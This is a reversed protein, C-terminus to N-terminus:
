PKRQRTRCRSKSPQLSPDTDRAKFKCEIIWSLGTRKNVRISYNPFTVGTCGHSTADSHEFSNEIAQLLHAPDIRDKLSPKAEEEGVPRITESVITDRYAM